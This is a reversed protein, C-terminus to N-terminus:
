YAFFTKFITFLQAKFWAVNLCAKVSFGHFCILCHWMWRSWHSAEQNLSSQMVASKMSSYPQISSSAVFLVSLALLQCCIQGLIQHSSCFFDQEVNLHVHSTVTPLPANSHSFILLPASFSRISVYPPTAHEAWWYFVVSSKGGPPNLVRNHSRPRPGLHPEHNKLEGAQDGGDPPSSSSCPEPEPPASVAAPEKTPTPAPPAAKEKM